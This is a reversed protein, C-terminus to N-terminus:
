RVIYETDGSPLTNVKPMLPIRVASSAFVPFIRHCFGAGSTPGVKVVDCDYQGPSILEVKGNMTLYDLLYCRVRGRNGDVDIQTIVQRPGEEIGFTVAVSSTEERPTQRVDIRVQAFGERRYRAVLRERARDVAAPDFPDGPALASAERLTEIPLRKAGAYAVDGITFIRGPEVEVRNHASMRPEENFVLGIGHGIFERPFVLREGFVELLPTVYKNTAISGLLM